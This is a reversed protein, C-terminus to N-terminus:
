LGLMEHFRLTTIKVEIRPASREVGGAAVLWPEPAYSDGGLHCGVFPESPKQVLFAPQSSTSTQPTISQHAFGQCIKASSSHNTMSDFTPVLINAKWLQKFDVGPPLDRFSQVYKNRKIGWEDILSFM